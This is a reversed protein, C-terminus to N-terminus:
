VHCHSTVSLESVAFTIESGVEGNGYEVASHRLPTQIIHDDANECAPVEDVAIILDVQGVELRPGWESLPRNMGVDSCSPTSSNDVLMDINAALMSSEDSFDASCRGDQELVRFSRQGQRVLLLQGCDNALISSRVRGSRVAALVMAAVNSGETNAPAATLTIERIQNARVGSNLVLDRRAVARVLCDRVVAGESLDLQKSLTHGFYATNAQHERVGIRSFAKDVDLVVEAVALVQGQPLARVSHDRVDGRVAVVRHKDKV